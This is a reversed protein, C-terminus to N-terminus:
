KKGRRNSVVATDTVSKIMLLVWCVLFGMADISLERAVSAIMTCIMACM